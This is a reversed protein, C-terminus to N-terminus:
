GQIKFFDRPGIIPRSNDNYAKIVQNQIELAGWEDIITEAEQRTFLEMVVEMTENKVLGANVKFLINAYQTLTMNEPKNVHIFIGGKDDCEYVVFANKGDLGYVDNNEQKKFRSFIQKLKQIM